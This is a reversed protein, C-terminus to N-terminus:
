AAMDLVLGAGTKHHRTLAVDMVSIARETSDPTLHGYKYATGLIQGDYRVKRWGREDPPYVVVRKEM